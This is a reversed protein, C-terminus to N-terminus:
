TINGKYLEKAISISIQNLRVTLYENVLKLYEDVQFIPMNKVDGYACNLREELKLMATNLDTDLKGASLKDFTGASLKDFHSDNMYKFLVLKYEKDLSGLIEAPPYNKCNKYDTGIIGTMHDIIDFISFKGALREDLTASCLLVYLLMERLKDERNTFALCGLLAYKIEVNDFLNGNANSLRTNIRM